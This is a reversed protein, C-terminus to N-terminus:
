KKVETFLNEYSLRKTEITGEDDEDEAGEKEDNDKTSFFRNKYKERWKKDNNKLETKLEEIKETESQFNNFTDTIDAILELTDDNDDDKFKDKVKEFLQERSLISM